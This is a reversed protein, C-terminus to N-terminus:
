ASERADHRDQHAMAKEKLRDGMESNKTVFRYGDSTIWGGSPSRFPRPWPLADQAELAEAEGEVESADSLLFVPLGTESNHEM